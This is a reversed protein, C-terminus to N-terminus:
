TGAQQKTCCAAGETHKTRHSAGKQGPRCWRMVSGPRAWEGRQCPLWPSLLRPQNVVVVAAASHQARSGEKFIGSRGTAPPPHRQLRQSAHTHALHKPHACPLQSTHTHPSPHRMAGTPKPQTSTKGGLLPEHQSQQKWVMMMLLLALLPPAPAMEM